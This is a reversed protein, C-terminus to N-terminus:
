HMQFGYKGQTEAKNMITETLNRATYTFFFFPSPNIFILSISFLNCKFIISFHCKLSIILLNVSTFRKDLKGSDRYIVCMDLFLPDQLVSPILLFFCTKQQDILSKRLSFSLNQSLDFLLRWLHTCFLPLRLIATRDAHFNKTTGSLASEM